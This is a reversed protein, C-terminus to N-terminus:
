LALEMKVDATVFPSNTVEIQVFGYAVYLQLAANLQHNSFLIIKKAKLVKAEELCREILLKSIGKGQWAPIVTMKALEFIGDHENLLAASGIIQDGSRALFVAGGPEIIQKVPENLMLIDPPELLNYKELWELNITKFDAAYRDEYRIIEVMAAFINM